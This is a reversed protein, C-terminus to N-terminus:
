AAQERSNLSYIHENLTLDTIIVSCDFKDNFKAWELAIEDNVTVMPSKYWDDLFFSNNANKQKYYFEIKDDKRIPDYGKQIIFGENNRIGLIKGYPNYENFLVVIDADRGNVSVPVSYMSRKSTDSIKYLCVNKGCIKPWLLNEASKKTDTKLYEKIGVMIMQKPNKSLTQWIALKESVAKDSTKSFDNRSYFSDSLEKSFVDSKLFDYFNNLYETYDGDMKLRDYIDLSTNATKKGGYVYYSSLGYLDTDSNHVNYIVARDLEYLLKEAEVPFLDMLQIAMDGVDVMDSENDRPSGAGFTKTSNRKSSLKKFSSKKYSLLDSSCLSMLEGMSIMVEYAKSLDTVSMTLDAEADLGYFDMFYDAIHKGLEYGDMYPNKNLQYLFSYDWGDGPELDESAILYRAYPSAVVAMEATAMLCSDFGLFELKDTLDAKEFAYNMKLLTLSGNTFKEDHGFGAISGGGHDWLILGSKEAPYNINCFSIFSSLTGPNGMNKLGVKAIKNIKGDAIEWIVCENSPITSNQWRNTGGTFVILNAYESKLGSNLMEILDVTAAGYESELDSGNMYVMVTYPKKSRKLIKESAKNIDWPTFDIGGYDLERKFQSNLSDNSDVSGAFDNNDLGSNIDSGNNSNEQEDQQGSNQNDSLNSYPGAVSNYSPTAGDYLEKTRVILKEATKGSLYFGGNEFDYFDATFKDQLKIAHELYKEDKATKYLELLGWIYFAYDEAFGSIKGPTDFYSSLLGGNNDKLNKDIFHAARKAAETYEPKQLLKGAISFAAIALGNLSTLIKEDRHPRIRKERYNFLKKLCRKIFDKHKDLIPKGATNLINKGEFNGKETINFYICFEAAEEKLIEKVEDLTFTYFLGEHGESDADEATFFAGEFHSMDRILYDATEVATDAFYHENTIGYIKSYAMLLLANDYLMKEFHPVIWKNDTSYRSFGGGAHDYIGGSRMAKLTTECMNLSKQDRYLSYHEILFLINHPSPFKPAPSFGGYKSDFHSSLYNIADESAKEVSTYGTIIREKKLIAATHKSQQLLKDRDASWLEQIRLLLNKFNEKPYYTSVFFPNKDHDLFVSLPWGGSGMFAQCATMYINDVDPREERDVKISIFYKNLIEAADESEFTEHAM